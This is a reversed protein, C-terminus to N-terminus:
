PQTSEESTAADAGDSEEAPAERPPQKEHYARLAAEFERVFQETTREDLARGYRVVRNGVPFDVWMRVGRLRNEAPDDVDVQIFAAGEGYYVSQTYVIDIEGSARDIRPREKAPDAKAPDYGNPYVGQIRLVELTDGWVEDATGQIRVRHGCAALCLALMCLIGRQVIATPTPRFRMRPAYRLVADLRVGSNM